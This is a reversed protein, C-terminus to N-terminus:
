VSYKGGVIAVCKGANLSHWIRLYEEGVIHENRASM